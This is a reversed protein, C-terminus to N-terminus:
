ALLQGPTNLLCTFLFCADDFGNWRVRIWCGARNSIGICITKLSNQENQVSESALRIDSKAVEDTIEHGMIHGPGWYVIYATTEGRGAQKSSRRRHLHYIRCASSHKITGTSFEGLASKM